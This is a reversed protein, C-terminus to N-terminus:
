EKGDKEKRLIYMLAIGEADHLEDVREVEWGKSLYDDNILNLNKLVAGDYGYTNNTWFIPVLTREYLSM